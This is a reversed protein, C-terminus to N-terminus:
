LDLIQARLYTRRIARALAAWGQEGDGAAAAAQKVAEHPIVDGAVAFSVQALDHPYPTVAAAHQRGHLAPLLVTPTLAAGVALVPIVGALWMSRKAPGRGSRAGSQVRIPKDKIAWDM